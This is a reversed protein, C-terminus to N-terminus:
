TRLARIAGREGARMMWAHNAVLVPRGWGAFRRLVPHCLRVRSSYDARSVDPSAAVRWQAWGELDGVIRVRLLAERGEADGREEVERRLTLRLSWPLLSRVRASGSQDDIRTVQRVQPWWEAYRDVGALLDIVLDPPAPLLWVSALHFFDAGHNM